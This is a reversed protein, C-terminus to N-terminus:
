YLEDLKMKLYKLVSRYTSFVSIGVGLLILGGFLILSNSIGQLMGIQPFQSTAWEILGFLLFIAVFASILGNLLARILLPKSIFNRTAGVMQMTKILFRNSYMALRITNDISIIVIICLIISMVLFIVGIKTARENLNTVLSKPYQIDAVDKPFTKEIAATIKTLSDTNVYDAKAYFDISEPLPNAELIKAWDENNEKNWIAKAKEKNIYEVNKAYPQSAIFKQIAGVTNKDATRVYVSIRIDEKFSDGISQLNLFLWGMIGMIFLVIAVGVISYIYNPKSRKLASTGTSAM